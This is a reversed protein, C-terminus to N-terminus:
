EDIVEPDNSDENLLAFAEEDSMSELTRLLEDMEETEASDLLSQSLIEALGGITPTEFVKRIPLDVQYTERVRSIIQTALLSHGGLEFFNDHVGIPSQGDKWELDLAEAWLRALDNEVPTRPAVFAVELEPRIAEPEPLARRDIKGSPSIPLNELFIIAAPVMYNPLYDRIHDFLESSSPENGEVPVVYAAIQKDVEQDPERHQDTGRTRLIVACESILPHRQIVTEIEGIEIRFGRVKVQDDIRGLFEIEGEPLYRVLDGTRYLKNMWEAPLGDVSLYEGFQNPIFREATLSPNNLYGRAIGMGGICLEGPVGPPVPHGANDLIFVFRNVTPHGIPIRYTRDSADKGAYPMVEYTLSTITTETPGYANLLRVSRPSSKHWLALSEKQM